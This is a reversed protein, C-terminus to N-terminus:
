MLGGFRGMKKAKVDAIKQTADNIAITIMDELMEADDPDVIQPDISVGLVEYKGNMTIKVLGNSALGEVETQEVEEQARAAERQLQQAQKMLAQMNGGGFGGFNAM